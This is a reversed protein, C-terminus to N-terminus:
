INAIDKLKKAITEAASESIQSTPASNTKLDQYNQLVSARNAELESKVHAAHVENMANNAYIIVHGAKINDIAESVMSTSDGPIFLYGDTANIAGIVLDFSNYPPKNNFQFDFVKVRESGLRDTLLNVFHQTIQDLKGDKHAKPILKKQEDHKGPRPGNLVLVCEGKAHEGIYKALQEADQKTFLNIDNVPTPADGGLMVGVYRSCIPLEKKWENFTQEAAKIDRNHPVGTVELLKLGVKDKDTKALHKPLAIFNIKNLLAVDEYNPLFIHSILGIVLNANCPLENIGKVGGEGAGLVIVKEHKLDQAIQEKITEPNVQSTDIDKTQNSLHKAVGLAQNHDGANNHNSLLYVKLAHVHGTSLVLCFFILLARKM